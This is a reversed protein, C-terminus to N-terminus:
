HDSDIAGLISVTDDDDRPNNLRLIGDGVFHGLRVGHDTQNLLSPGILVIYSPAEPTGGAGHPPLLLMEIITAQRRQPAFPAVRATPRAQPGAVYLSDLLQSGSALGVAFYGPEHADAIFGDAFEQPARSPYLRRRDL